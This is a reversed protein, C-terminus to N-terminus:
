LELREFDYGRADRDMRASNKNVKEEALKIEVRRM